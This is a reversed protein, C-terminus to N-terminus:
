REPVRARLGITNPLIVSTVHPPGQDTMGRASDVGLLALLPLRPVLLRRGVRLSPLQGDQCARSVTRADLGLLAAVETVTLTATASTALTTLTLESTM